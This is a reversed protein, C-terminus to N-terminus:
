DDLRKLSWGVSLGRLVPNQPVISRRAPHSNELSTTCGLRGNEPFGDGDHML